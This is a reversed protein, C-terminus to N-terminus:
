NSKQAIYIAVISLFFGVIDAAMHAADTQISISNALLGGVIEAIMFLICLILVCILKRLVPKNRKKLQDFDKNGVHCHDSLKSDSKLIDKRNNIENEDEVNINVGLHNDSIDESPNFNPNLMPVDEQDDFKNYKNNKKVINNATLDSFLGIDV